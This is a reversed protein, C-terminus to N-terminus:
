FGGNDMGPILGSKGGGKRSLGSGKKGEAAGTSKVLTLEKVKGYCILEPSTYLHKKM